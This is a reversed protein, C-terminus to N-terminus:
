NKLKANIYDEIKELSFDEHLVKGNIIFTPVVYIGYNNLIEINKKNQLDIETSKFDRIFQDTDLGIQSAAYYCISDNENDIKNNFLINYMEWFKGQMGAALTAKNLSSSNTNYIISSLKIKDEFRNYLKDIRSKINQCAHCEYDSIVMLEIKSNKNGKPYKTLESLNIFQSVPPEILFVAPYKNKLLSDIYEEQRMKTRSNIINREITEYEESNKFKGNTQLNTWNEIYDKIEKESVPVIKRKIENEVLKETSVNLEKSEKEIIKRSIIRKLISQRLDYIQFSVISDIENLFITDKDIIAAIMYKKDTKNKEICSILLCFFVLKLLIFKLKSM